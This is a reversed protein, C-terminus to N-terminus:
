EVSNARLSCCDLLQHASRQSQPHSSAIIYFLSEFDSVLLLFSVFIFFPIRSPIVPM